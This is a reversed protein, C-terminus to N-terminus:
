VDKFRSPHKGNQGVSNGVGLGDGGEAESQWLSELGGSVDSTPVDDKRLDLDGSRIKEVTRHSTSPLRFPLKRKAVIDSQFTGLCDLEDYQM